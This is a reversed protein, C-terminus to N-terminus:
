QLPDTLSVIEIIASKQDNRHEKMNRDRDGPTANLIVQELEDLDELVNTDCYQEDEGLGEEAIVTTALLTDLLDWLFPAIRTMGAATNDVRFSWSNLPYAQQM